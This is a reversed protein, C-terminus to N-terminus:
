DSLSKLSVEEAILSKIIGSELKVQLHGQHDLDLTTAEYSKGADEFIIKKGIFGSLRKWEEIMFSSGKQIFNEIQIFIEELIKKLLDIRSYHQGSLEFLSTAIDQLDEPFDEQSQSVNIGIGLLVYDIKSSHGGQQIVLECLIGALKKHNVWIDNPWKLLTNEFGLVRLVRLLALGALLTLLPAQQPSLNPRLILTFYLGKAEPSEWRRQLRGRGETQCDAIVLTGEPEGSKALLAAQRNTSDTKEFFCVKELQRIDLCLKQVLAAFSEREIKM